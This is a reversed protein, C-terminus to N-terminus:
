LERLPDKQYQHPYDFFLLTPLLQFFLPLKIDGTKAPPNKVVLMVQSAGHFPCFGVSYIKFPLFHVLHSVPPFFGHSFTVTTSLSNGTQSQMSHGTQRRYYYGYELVERTTWHNLIQRGTCPVHTGDRTQSSEVHKPAVLGTCGLAWAGHCTLLGQESRSCFARQLM